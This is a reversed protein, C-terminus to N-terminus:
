KGGTVNFDKSVVGLAAVLFGMMIQKIDVNGSEIIPQVAILGGIIAGLITTKWNKM